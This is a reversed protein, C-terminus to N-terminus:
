TSIGRHILDCILKGDRGGAEGQVIYGSLDVVRDATGVQGPVHADCYRMVWAQTLNANPECTPCWDTVSIPPTEVWADSM